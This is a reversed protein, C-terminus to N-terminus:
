CINRWPKCIRRNARCQPWKYKQKKYCNVWNAMLQASRGQWVCSSQDQRPSNESIHEKNGWVVQRINVALEGPEWGVVSYERRVFTCACGFGGFYMKLLVVFIAEINTWSLLNMCRQRLEKNLTSGKRNSSMQLFVTVQGPVFILWQGDRSPIFICCWEKSEGSQQSPFKQGKKKRPQKSQM